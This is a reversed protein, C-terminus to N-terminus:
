GIKKREKGNMIYKFTKCLRGAIVSSFYQFTPISRLFIICNMMHPQALASGAGLIGDHQKYVINHSEIHIVIQKPTHSCFITLTDNWFYNGKWSPSLMGIERMVECPFTPPFNAHQHFQFCCQPFSVTSWVSLTKLCMRFSPPIRQGKM